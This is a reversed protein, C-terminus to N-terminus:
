ALDGMPARRRGDVRLECVRDGRPRKFRQVMQERALGDGGLAKPEPNAFELRRGALDRWCNGALDLEVPETRGSLWIRGVVRGRARNDIEGRIVQEDIRWAM